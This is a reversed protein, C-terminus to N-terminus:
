DATIVQKELTVMAKDLLAQIDLASEEAKVEFLKPKTAPHRPVFLTCCDEYPQASIDYTGIKLAIDVIESKDMGILPRFVPMTVAEETAALARMTQSAVQGLSEGTVLAEARYEGAVREALKAMFRRMILTLFREDCHDRIATQIEILNIMNLEIRGCYRSLERCLSIVKQKAKEGTHPFSHFHIAILEVGRKAMMYGAVPSDIGGSLLLVARGNSGLPMGGVGPLIRAYIYAGDERIEIDVFYDPKHVDVTVGELKDLVFGGATRCIGNSDLPFTKDSRRTRIKFTARAKGDKEMADKLISAAAECITDMDKDVCTASAASHVGFVCCIRRLAENEDEAGIGKIYYRGDGKGVHCRFPSLAERIRTTLMKEFFPRNLGKLHIEGYRALIVKRNM